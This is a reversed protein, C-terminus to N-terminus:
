RGKGIEENCCASNHSGHEPLVTNVSVAVAGIFVFSRNRSLQCQWLLAGCTGVHGARLLASPAQLWVRVFLAGVCACVCRCM